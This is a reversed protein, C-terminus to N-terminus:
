GFWVSTRSALMDYLTEQGLYINWENAPSLRVHDQVAWSAFTVQTTGTFEQVSGSLSWLLDGEELNDPHSYNYVYLSAFRGPYVGSPEPVRFTANPDSNDEPLVCASLDTTFFGCCDLGTVVMAVPQGDHM